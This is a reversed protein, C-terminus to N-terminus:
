AATEIIEVDMGNIMGDQWDKSRVAEDALRQLTARLDPHERFWMYVANPNTIRAKRTTRLSLGRGAGTASDIKPRDSISAARKAEAAADKQMQDARAAGMADGRAAALAAAAFAEDALKRAEAERAAKEATLRTQEKKLWVASAAKQENAAKEMANLFLSFAAQVAKGADDHPKKEAARSTDVAKFAARLAGVIDSVEEAHAADKIEGRRAMEDSRLLVDQTIRESAARVTESFPPPANDGMVARPPDQDTM